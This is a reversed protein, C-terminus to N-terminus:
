VLMFGATIVGFVLMFVKSGLSLGQELQLSQANFPNLHGLNMAGASSRSSAKSSATQSYSSSSYSSIRSSSSSILSSSILSSSSSLVSASSSLSSSSLLSSSSSVGSSSGFSSSVSSSASSLSSFSSSLVSISSSVSSSVISSFSSILSSSSAFSSSFSDFSSSLSASSSGSSSVGSSSSEVSSSSSASSSSDFSSSASSIVSSSASSIVSSSVSSSDSSSVSSSDGSSVGSSSSLVSSSSVVSSSSSSSSAVSSISSTLVTVSSSSASSPVVSSSPASSTVSSSATPTATRYPDKTLTTTTADFNLNCLGLTFATNISSCDYSLSTSHVVGSTSSTLRSQFTSYSDTPGNYYVYYDIAGSTDQAKWTMAIFDTNPCFPLLLSLVSYDVTFSGDAYNAVVDLNLQSGKTVVNFDIVNLPSDVVAYWNLMLAGAGLLAIKETFLGGHFDVPTTETGALSFSSNYTNAYCGALLGTSGTALLPVSTVVPATTTWTLQATALSIAFSLISLRHLLKM